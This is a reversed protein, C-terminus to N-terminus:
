AVSTQKTVKAPLGQANLARLTFTVDVMEVTQCGDEQPPLRSLEAETPARPTEQDLTLLLAYLDKCAAHYYEGLNLIVRKIDSPEDGSGHVVWSIRPDIYCAAEIRLSLAQVMMKVASECVARLSFDCHPQRETSRSPAHSSAHLRDVVDHMLSTLVDASVSFSGLLLLLFPPPHAVSLSRFLLLLASFSLVSACRMNQTYLGQEASLHTSEILRCSSTITTLNTRMKLTTEAVWSSDWLPMILGADDAGSRLPMEARSSALATAKSELSTQSAHREAHDSADEAAPRHEAQLRRFSLATWPHQEQSDCRRASVKYRRRRIM